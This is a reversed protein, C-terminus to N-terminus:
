HGLKAFLLINPVWLLLCLGIVAYYYPNNNSQSQPAFNKAIYGMIPALTIIPILFAGYFYRKQHTKQTETFNTLVGYLSFMYDHTVIVSCLM